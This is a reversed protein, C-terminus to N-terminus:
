GIRSYRLLRKLDKQVKAGTDGLEFRVVFVGTPDVIYIGRALAKAAPTDARLQMLKPYTSGIAPDVSGNQILLARRLRTADKTVLVQLARMQSLSTECDAGCRTPTVVLLWWLREATVPVGQQTRLQLGDMSLDTVFEGENTTNWVNGGQSFYFLLYSGGLTLAVIAMMLLFQTRGPHAKSM